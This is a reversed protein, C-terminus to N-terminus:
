QLTYRLYSFNPLISQQLTKWKQNMYCASLDSSLSLSVCVPGKNKCHNFGLFRHPSLFRREGIISQQDRGAVIYVHITHHAYIFQFDCSLHSAVLISVMKQNFVIQLLHVSFPSM